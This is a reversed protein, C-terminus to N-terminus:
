SGSPGATFTYGWPELHPRLVQWVHAEVALAPLRPVALRGMPSM